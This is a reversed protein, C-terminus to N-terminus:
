VALYEAVSLYAKFHPGESWLKKEKKRKEKKTEASISGQLPSSDTTKKLNKKGRWKLLEIEDSGNKGAMLDVNQEAREERQMTGFFRTIKELDEPDEM